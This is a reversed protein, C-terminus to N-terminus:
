ENIYTVEDGKIIKGIIYANEGNQKLVEVAKEGEAENVVAIMGIGCNLVRLMESLEVEGKQKLWSFILPMEWSALNIEATM